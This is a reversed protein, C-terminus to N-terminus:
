FLKPSGVIKIPATQASALVTGTFTDYAYATVAGNGTRSGVHVYFKVEATSGPALDGIQCDIVTDGSSFPCYVARADLADPLALSVGLGPITEAGTNEVRVTFEVIDGIKARTVNPTVSVTLGTVDQAAVVRPASIVMTASLLLAILSLLLALRLRVM